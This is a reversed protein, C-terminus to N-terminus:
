VLNLNRTEVKLSRFILRLKISSINEEIQMLVIKRAITYIRERRKEKRNEFGVKWSLSAKV